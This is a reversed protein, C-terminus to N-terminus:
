LQRYSADHAAVELEHQVRTKRCANVVNELAHLWKQQVASLDITLM